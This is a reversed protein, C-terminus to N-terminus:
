ITNVNLYTIAKSKFQNFNKEEWKLRQERIQALSLRSTHMDVSDATTITIRRSAGLRKKRDAGMLFSSSYFLVFGLHDAAAAVVVTVVVVLLLM